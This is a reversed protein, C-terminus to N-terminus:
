KKRSPGAESESSDERNRKLGKSEEEDAYEEEDEYEESSQYEASNESSEEASEGLGSDEARAEQYVEDLGTQTDEERARRAEPSETILAQIWTKRVIADEARAIRRQYFAVEEQDNDRRADELCGECASKWERVRSESVFTRPDEDTAMNNENGKNYGPDQYTNNNGQNSNMYMPTLDYFYQPFYLLLLTHILVVTIYIIIFM